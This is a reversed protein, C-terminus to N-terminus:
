VGFYQGFQAHQDGWGYQGGFTTIATEEVYGSFRVGQPRPIIDFTDLVFRQLDNLPAGFSVSFTMDEGDIVQTNPIPVIYNLATVIDDLTAASNNKTIKARILMRYIQNNVDQNTAISAAGFQDIQGGFQGVGFSTPENQLESEYGRSISVIRGIVDLEYTTATDIDYSYRIDDASVALQCGLIRTIEYWALAKPRTDGRYEGYIRDPVINCMM